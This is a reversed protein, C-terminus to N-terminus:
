NMYKELSNMLWQLKGGKGSIDFDYNRFKKARKCLDHSAALQAMDPQLRYSLVATLFLAHPLVFRSHQLQVMVAAAATAAAAPNPSGSTPPRLAAALPMTTLTELIAEHWAPPMRKVSSANHLYLFEFLWVEAGVSGRDIYSAIRGRLVPQEKAGAAHMKLRDAARRLWHFATRRDDPEAGCAAAAAFAASLGGVSRQDVGAAETAMVVRSFLALSPSWMRQFFQAHGLQLALM